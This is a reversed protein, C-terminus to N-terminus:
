EISEIYDEANDQADTNIHKEAKYSLGLENIIKLMQIESDTLVKIAENKVMNGRNNKTLIGYKKIELKAELLLTYNEALLDILTSIHGEIEQHQKTLYNKVNEIYKEVIEQTTMKGTNRKKM